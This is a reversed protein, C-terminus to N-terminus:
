ENINTGPVAMTVHFSCYGNAICIDTQGASPFTGQEYNINLKLSLSLGFPAFKCGGFKVARTLGTWWLLVATFPIAKYSITEM